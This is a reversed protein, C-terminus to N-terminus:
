RDSSTKATLEQDKETGAKAGMAVKRSPCTFGGGTGDILFDNGRFPGVM